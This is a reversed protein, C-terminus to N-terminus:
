RSRGDPRALSECARQAGMSPGPPAQGASMEARGDRLVHVTDTLAQVREELIHVREELAAVSSRQYHPVIQKM